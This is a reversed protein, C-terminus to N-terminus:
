DTFLLSASTYTFYQLEFQEKYSTIQRDNLIEIGVSHKDKKKEGKKSNYFEIVSPFWNLSEFKKDAFFLKLLYCMGMIFGDDSFYANDETKTKKLLNDRALIATDVFTLTVPPLLFALLPLEPFKELTISQSFATVLIELYNTENEGTQKLSSITQCFLKSSEILSNKTNTIMNPSIQSTQSKPDDNAQLSLRDLLNNFDNTNYTTLLNVNQSNYDMLASRICRVLSVVNGIQTIINICQNITGVKKGQDLAIIKQRLIQGRELPYNYNIQAKSEEWFRMEDKLMSNIYDNRLVDVLFGVNKAIFEVAKNVISNVIGKGHTYLSSIIQQVGIINIYSSDKAIEIFQQNHLNYTYSKAFTSISRVIELIDKGQELNQNPLYVDHLNLGYKNKALVRMRQYTQFNNLNLTTMQYFKMNLQEELYRKIDVIRDFFRFNKINLYTKLNNDSYPAGELGEIFTGHVQMLLDNAIENALNKLFINEFSEFIKKRLIKIIGIGDDERCKMYHLPNEIDNIAMIFYYLRKPRDNYINKFATPLIDQYSYLFSCDCCRKIERSLQSIMEIMWLNDNIINYNEEDLLEKATITSFCLKEIVLRLESQIGKSCLYFIDSATLADKYLQENTSKGDNVKKNAKKAVGQIADQIPYLLTRTLLPINLSILNMLKSFEFEIVKILELGSIIENIIEEDLQIDFHLHSDLIFSINRRLYNATCLGEIILKIKKSTNEFLKPNGQAKSSFDKSNSFINDMYTAWTLINKNFNSIMYHFQKELSTLSTKMSREVSAPDLSIGRKFEEFGNLFKEINFSSIGVININVIKKQVQWASKLVNKDSNQGFLKIYFGLLSLYQFLETPEYSETLKFLNSYIKNIRSSIYLDFHKLFTKCQSLPIIGQGSASIQGSKGLIIDICQTYCTGEFITANIKKIFKNLKKRQEETINLEESNNKSQFVVTRYKGWHPRLFENKTVINDIALFYSLIKGIYEFALSFNYFKYSVSYYNNKENYLSALQNLLNIALTMLKHIKENIENFYPFMRAIKIEGDDEQKEETQNESIEQGYVSLCYLSEYNTIGINPLLNDVELILTGLATLVKKYFDKSPRIIDCIGPLTEQASIKIKIPDISSSTRWSSKHDFFDNKQIDDYFTNCVESLTKFNLDNSIITEEKEKNADFDTKSQFNFNDSDDDSDSM